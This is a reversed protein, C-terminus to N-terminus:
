SINNNLVTKLINNWGTNIIKYAKKDENLLALYNEKLRNNIILLDKNKDFEIKSLIYLATGYTLNYEDDFVKKIIYLNKTQLCFILYGDDLIIQSYNSDTNSIMKWINEDKFFQKKLDDNEDIAENYGLVQNLFDRRLTQREKEYFISYILVIKKLASITSDSLFSQIIENSIINKNYLQKVDKAKINGEIFLYLARDKGIHEIYNEATIINYNYLENVIRDNLLDKYQNIIEKGISNKEYDSKGNIFILKYLEVYKTLISKKREDLFLNILENNLVVDELFKNNDINQKLYDIAEIDINSSLYKNIIYEDDVIDLDYLKKLTNNDIIDNDFVKLIEERSLYNNEFIYKLNNENKLLISLDRSDYTFFNRFTEKSIEEIPIEGMLVKKLLDNIQDVTYYKGNVFCKNLTNISSKVYQFSIMKSNNIYFYEDKNDIISEVLNTYNLLKNMELVNYEDFEIYDIYYNYNSIILMKDIDIYKLYETIIKEFNLINSDIDKEDYKKVLLAGLNSYKCFDSLDKLRLHVLMNEIGIIDKAKQFKMINNEYKRKVIENDGFLEQSSEIVLSSNKSNVAIDVVDINKLLDKCYDITATTPRNTASAYYIHPYFKTGLIEAEKSEKYDKELYKGIHFLYLQVDFINKNNKIIELSKNYDISIYKKLETEFKSVEEISVDHKYTARYDEFRVPFGIKSVVKEFELQKENSVM